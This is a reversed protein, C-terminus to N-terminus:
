VARGEKIAVSHDVVREACEGCITGVASLTAESCGLKRLGDTIRNAKALDTVAACTRCLIHDRRATDRKAIRSATASARASRPKM